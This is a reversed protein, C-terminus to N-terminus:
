FIWLSLGTFSLFRGYFLRYFEGQKGYGGAHDPDGGEGDNLYEDLVVPYGAQYGQNERNQPIEREVPFVGELGRGVYGHGHCLHETKVHHERGQGCIQAVQRFGAAASKRIRATVMTIFKRSSNANQLSTTYRPLSFVRSGERLFRGAAGESSSYFVGGGPHKKHKYGGWVISATM